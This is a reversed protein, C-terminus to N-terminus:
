RAGAGTAISSRLPAPEGDDPPRRSPRVGRGPTALAGARRHRTRDRVDCPRPRRRSWRVEEFEHDHRCTAAPRSWSSTTSPRTSAPARRCSLTTSRSSRGVIRVEPRDGRSRACPRRSPRRAPRAHGEAPDLHGTGSAAGGDSLSSPVGDAGSSSGAPRPRAHREEAAGRRRRPRPRRGTRVPASDTWRVRSPGPSVPARGTRARRAVVSGLEPRLLSPGPRDAVTSGPATRPLGSGPPSRLGCAANRRGRCSSADFRRAPRRRVRRRHQAAHRLDYREAANELRRACGRRPMRHWARRRRRHRSAGAAALYSRRAGGPRRQRARGPPSSRAADGRVRARDPRARDRAGPRQRPDASWRVTSRWRAPKMSAPAAALEAIADLLAIFGGAALVAAAHYAPKRARRCACRSRASRRPWGRSCTSRARRRGRPRRDRRAPEVGARPGRLRRAPPVLRGTGAAM